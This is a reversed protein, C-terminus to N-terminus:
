EDLFGEYQDLFIRIKSHVLEPNEGNMGHGVGKLIEVDVLNPLCRKAREIVKNLPSFPVEYEGMLLVTPATLMALEDDSLPPVGNEAKFNGILEFMTIADETIPINPPTMIKLFRKAFQRTSIFPSMIFHPLLRIVLMINVPIFGGSSMLLAAIIKHPAFTALKLITWGGGSLGIHLSEQIGLAVMVDSAWEGYQQSKRNMRKPVSRGSDGPVDASIVYYDEAFANIENIWMTSSASMGHWFILPPNHSEGAIIVYTQGHRTDVYQTEYTVTLQSLIKDYVAQMKDYATHNKWMISSDIIKTM